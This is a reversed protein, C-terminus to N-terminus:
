KHFAGSCYLTWGPPLDGGDCLWTMWDEGPYLNVGVRLERSDVAVSGAYKAYTGGSVFGVQRPGNTTREYWCPLNMTPRSIAYVTEVLSGSCRGGIMQLASVSRRRTDELYQMHSEDTYVIASADAPEHFVTLTSWFERTTVEGADPLGALGATAADVAADTGTGHPTRDAKPRGGAQNVGVTALSRIATVVVDCTDDRSLEVTFSTDRRAVVRLATGTVSECPGDGGSGHAVVSGVHLERGDAAYVRVEPSAHAPTTLALLALPMLLRACRPM